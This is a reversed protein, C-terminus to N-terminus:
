NNLHQELLAFRIKSIFGCKHIKHEIKTYVSMFFVSSCSVRTLDLCGMLMDLMSDSMSHINDLVFQEFVADHHKSLAIMKKGFEISM